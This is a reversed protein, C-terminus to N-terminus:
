QGMTIGITGYPDRTDWISGEQGMHNGITWYPDRNDWIIGWQGMHMGITGYPDRNVWLNGLTGLGLSGLLGRQRWLCIRFILLCYSLHAFCASFSRVFTVVCAYIM